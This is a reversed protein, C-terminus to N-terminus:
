SRVLNFRTVSTSAGYLFSFEDDCRLKALKKLEMKQSSNENKYPAEVDTVRKLETRLQSNKYTARRNGQKASGNYYVWGNTACESM